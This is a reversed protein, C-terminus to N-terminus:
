SLSLAPIFGGRANVQDYIQWPMHAKPMRVRGLEIAPSVGVAPFIHLTATQGHREKVRDLLARIVTRFQSLHMRSKILDNHPHDVTVRWIAANSGLVATIRDDTVRASLSLVLAPAGDLSAPEEVNFEITRARAPWAWTQEPERHLQFAEAETIDIMLAGLRILLPQPAIAFVSLHRIEGLRVRERVRREFQSVLNEAEINWFNPNVDTFSSNVM